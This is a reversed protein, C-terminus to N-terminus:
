QQNFSAAHDASRFRQRGQRQKRRVDARHFLAVVAASVVFLLITFLLM